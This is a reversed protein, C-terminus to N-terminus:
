ALHTHLSCDLTHNAVTTKPKNTRHFPTLDKEVAAAQLVEIKVREFLPVRHLKLDLVAGLTGPGYHDPRGRFLGNTEPRLFRALILDSFTPSLHVMKPCDALVCRPM